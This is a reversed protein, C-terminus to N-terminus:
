LNLDAATTAKCNVLMGEKHKGCIECVKIYAVENRSFPSAYSFFWKHLHGDGTFIYKILRIM